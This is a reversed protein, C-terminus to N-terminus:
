RNAMSTSKLLSIWLGCDPKSLFYQSWNAIDATLVSLSFYYTIGGM